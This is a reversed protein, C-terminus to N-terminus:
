LEHVSVYWAKTLTDLRSRYKWYQSRYFAMTVDAMAVMARRSVLLKAAM